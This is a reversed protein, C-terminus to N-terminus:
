PYIFHTFEVQPGRKLAIKGTLPGPLTAEIALMMAVPQGPAETDFTYTFFEPGVEVRQPQPVIRELSASELYARSIRIRVQRGTVAAAGVNIQLDMTSQLRWFRRYEVWLEGEQRGAVAKSLPGAGFLGLLAGIVVLGLLIWGVRQLIWDRRQLALDQALQLTRAAREEVKADM